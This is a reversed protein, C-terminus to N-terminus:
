LWDSRKFHLYLFGCVAVIILLSIAYGYEWQLEPMIKFNMGWIGTFVTAIAFIAAWAALQKNIVTQEISVTSQSVLIATTITDRMTDVTSNIRVLHDYVDRFYEQTSTCVQPVRGGHLKGTAEMLPMVAHKLVMVKSKLEYLRAINALAGGKDFLHDEISELQFELDDIVPFYLDVVADMLAYFVFGAGLRLLEPERECRERVGLFNQKSRNRISLVFNHGVFISIEGVTLEPGDTEVLHMVVFLTDGYEEIKPRQHGHRADEVALDHLGFEEQMKEVEADTTDRLAVWIFCDNRKLYDSIEEVPIDALKVGNQYAACNILM